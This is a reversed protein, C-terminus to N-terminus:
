HHGVAARIQGAAAGGTMRTGPLLLGATKAQGPQLGGTGDITRDLEV